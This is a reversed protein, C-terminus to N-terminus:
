YSYNWVLDFFTVIASFMLPITFNDDIGIFSPRAEIITVAFVAVFGFLYFWAKSDFFIGCGILIAVASFFFAASGAISKEFFPQSPVAKGVLAAFADSIVLILFGATAIEIKFVFFNICAALFVFSAGSLKEGSLEHERLIAGFIKGFLNKIKPSKRRLFDLSIVFISIPALVLLTQWKGFHLFAMPILILLLHLSKRYSEHTLNM